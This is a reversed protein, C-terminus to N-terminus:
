ASDPDIGIQPRNGVPMDQCDTVRGMGDSRGTRGVSLGREGCPGRPRMGRPDNHCLPGLPVQLRETKGRQGLGDGDTAEAYDIEEITIVFLNSVDDFTSCRAFEAIEEQQQDDISELKLTSKRSGEVQGAAMSHRPALCVVRDFFEMRGLSLGHSQQDRTRTSAVAATAQRPRQRAAEHEDETGLLEYIAFGCEDLGLSEARRHVNKLDQVVTGLLRRPRLSRGSGGAPCQLPQRVLV